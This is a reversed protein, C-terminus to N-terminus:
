ICCVTVAELAPLPPSAVSRPTYRGCELRPHSIHCLVQRVNIGDDLLVHRSEILGPHQGDPGAELDRLVPQGIRLGDDDRDPALDRIERRALHQGGLHAPHRHVNALCGRFLRQFQLVRLLVRGAEPQCRVQARYRVEGVLPRRRTGIRRRGRRRVGLQRRDGFGLEGVAPRRAHGQVRDLRLRGDREAGAGVRAPGREPGEQGARRFREGDAQVVEGRRVDRLGDRGAQGTLLQAQHEVVRPLVRGRVLGVGGGDALQPLRHGGPESLRPRQGTGVGVRRGPDEGGGVVDLDRDPVARREPQGAPVPVVGVLGVDVRDGDRRIRELRPVAVPVPVHDDLLRLEGPYELVVDPVVQLDRGAVVRRGLRCARRQHRRREATALGRGKLWNKGAAVTVPVM